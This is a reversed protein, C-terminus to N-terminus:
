ENIKRKGYGHVLFVSVLLLIPLAVIPLYQVPSVHAQLASTRSFFKSEPLPGIDKKYGSPGPGIFQIDENKVVDPGFDMNLYAARVAEFDYVGGTRMRGSEDSFGYDDLCIFMCRDERDFYIALSARLDFNRGLIYVKNSDEPNYPEGLIEELRAITIPEKNGLESPGILESPAREESLVSRYHARDEQSKPTKGLFFDLVRETIPYNLAVAAELWEGNTLRIPISWYSDSERAAQEFDERTFSELLYPNLMCYQKYAMDYEVKAGEIPQWPFYNETTKQIEEDYKM